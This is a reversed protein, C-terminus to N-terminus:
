HRIWCEVLVTFQSARSAIEAPKLPRRPKVEVYRVGNEALFARILSADLAFNLNQPVDGTLRTVRVADLKALVIGILDAREDLLPGGSNGVQVPASISLVNDDGSLGSLGSVNGQTVNLGSLMGHLPFGAVVVAEGLRAHAARLGVVEGHDGSTTLLALDNEADRALVQAGSRGNVRIHSCHEVVHSNTVFRGEAVRFASGTTDAADGTAPRPLIRVTASDEGQMPRWERADSQAAARQEATLRQEVADRVRMVDEDGAVAALILWFYAQQDDTPVGRGSAYLAGLNFQASGHGQEAAKRFWFAAQRDDKAVGKGEFYLVGLNFQGRALGQEAAKTYWAAAEPADQPVGRGSEYMAGLNAEAEAYGQEASRRYWSVAQGEDTPVGIGSDYALGLNFQAKAHGQGAAKRFWSLAQVTDRPVGQGELYMVGLNFRAKAHGQEAARRFWTAALQEDKTVALGGAYLAGIGFQCSPEGAVAMPHWVKLAETYDASDFAAQGDECPGAWALGSLLAIGCAVLRPVSFRRGTNPACAAASTCRGPESGAVVSMDLKDPLGWMCPMM